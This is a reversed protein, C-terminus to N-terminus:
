KKKCLANRFLSLVPFTNEVQLETFKFRTFLDHFLYKEVNFHLVMKLPISNETPLTQPIYKSILSPNKVAIAFGKGCTKAFARPSLRVGSNYHCSIGFRAKRVVQQFHLKVTVENEM